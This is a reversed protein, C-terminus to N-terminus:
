KRKAYAQTSLDIFKIIDPEGETCKAGDWMVPVGLNNVDLGCQKAIGMFEEANDQDNFVEKFIVPIKKDMGTELARAEVRVCHPCGQGVYVTVPGTPLKSTEAAPKVVPKAVPEDAKTTTANPATSTPQASPQTQATDVVPAKPEPTTNTPKATQCGAGFLVGIALGAILYKPTKM